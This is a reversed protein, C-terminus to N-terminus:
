REGQEIEVLAKAIGNAFGERRVDVSVDGPGRKGIRSKKLASESYPISGLQFLFSIKWDDTVRCSFRAKKALDSILAVEATIFTRDCQFYPCIGATLLCPLLTWRYDTAKEFGLINVVVEEGNREFVGPCTHVVQEMASYSGFAKHMVSDDEAMFCGNMRVERIRYKKQTNVEASSSIVDCQDAYVIECRSRSTM